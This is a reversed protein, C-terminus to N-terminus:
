KTGTAQNGSLMSRWHSAADQLRQKAAEDVEADPDQRNKIRELESQTLRLAAQAYASRFSAFTLGSLSSCAISEGETGRELGLM